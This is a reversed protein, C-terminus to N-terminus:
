YTQTLSPYSHISRVAKLIKEDSDMSLVKKPLLHGINTVMPIPYYGTSIIVDLVHKLHEKFLVPEPFKNKKERQKARNLDGEATSDNETTYGLGWKPIYGKVM